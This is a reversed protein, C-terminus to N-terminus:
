GPDGQGTEEIFDQVALHFDDESIEKMILRDLSEWLIPSDAIKLSYGNANLFMEAAYFGTRKNGQLFPHNRAIGILLIIALILVDEQGREWHNIPRALRWAGTMASKQLLIPWFRVNRM